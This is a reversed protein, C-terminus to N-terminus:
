FRTGVRLYYFAGNAGDPHLFSYRNIGNVQNAAIFQAPYTDFLNNAGITLRSADTLAYAIEVNTYGKAGYREDYAPNTPHVYTYRGYLLQNLSASFRGLRWDAGLVAKYEPTGVEPNLLVNRQFLAVSSVRNPAVRLVRTAYRSFGASLDLAGAGGLDLAYRALIDVGRTRTDIGNTFFTISKYDAIGAARTAAEVVAGTLAQTTLIRNDVGIQYADITVSARAAPRLVIGASVNTAREPDLPGGGLAIAVPDDPRVQRTRNPAPVIGSHNWTGAYGSSQFALQGVSPAHYGSSLTGRLAFAPSFDYRASVKGTTTWGFDSYEEGRVTADVLLRDTVHFDAGVYASYVNRDGRTIDWPAIGQETGGWAAPSGADPGDLIPVGGNNWSQEEGARGVWWNERRFAIGARLALPRALWGVVFDRDYDLTVNLQDANVQGVYLDTRSNLGYSPAVLNYNHTDRIHRGYVVSLDFRGADGADHRVGGAASLNQDYYDGIVQYGDPFIARINVSSSPVQPNVWSRTDAKAYNLWGYAETADSLPLKGNLLTSFQRVRANGWQGVDDRGFPERPDPTGASSTAPLLTGNAGIRFYRRRIDPGSRDTSGRRSFDASLNLFGGDGLRSGVWGSLAGTEGDGARYSGLTADLAGGHDDERLILNVVGAIADSGYQASAGDLLIEVRSLAAVPITNIDAYGAGGYPFTGGTAVSGHRRKGDVLVLTLDPNQGRLSASRTAGGGVRAAAGQPFNFSPAARFLTQQLTIAGGQEIAERSVVDVPSTGALAQTARRNGTVVLDDGDPEPATDDSAEVSATAVTPVSQALVESGGIFGTALVGVAITSRYITDRM